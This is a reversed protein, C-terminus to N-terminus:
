DHSIFVGPFRVTFEMVAAGWIATEAKTRGPVLFLQEIQPETM